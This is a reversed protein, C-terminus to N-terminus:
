GCPFMHDPSAIGPVYAGNVAALEDDDLREGEGAIEELTCDYGEARILALREGEDTTALVRDRFQEDSKMREVLAKVADESMSEERRPSAVDEARNDGWHPRRGVAVPTRGDAEDTDEATM